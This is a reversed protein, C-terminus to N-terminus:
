RSVLTFSIRPQLYRYKYYGIMSRYIYDCVPLKYEIISLLYHSILRHQLFTTSYCLLLESYPVLMIYIYPVTIDFYLIQCLGGITVQCLTICLWTLMASNETDTACQLTDPLGLVIKSFISVSSAPLIKTAMDATNMKTPIKILKCWGDFILKRIYHHKTRMHKDRSVLTANRRTLWLSVIKTCKSLWLNSYDPKM